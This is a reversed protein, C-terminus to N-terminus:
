RGNREELRALMAAAKGRISMEIAGSDTVRMVLLGGVKAITVPMHWRMGGIEAYVDPGVAPRRDEPLRRRASHAM